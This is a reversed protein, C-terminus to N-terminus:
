EKKLQEKGFAALLVAAIFFAICGYVFWYGLISYLTWRRQMTIDATITPNETEFYDQYSLIRGHYDAAM